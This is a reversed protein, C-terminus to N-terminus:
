FAHVAFSPQSIFLRGDRINPCSGCFLQELGRSGSLFAAASTSFPTLSYTRYSLKNRCRHRSVKGIVGSSRKSVAKVTNGRSGSTVCSRTRGVATTRYYTQMHMRCMFLPWKWCILSLTSLMNRRRDRIPDALYLHFGLLTPLFQENNERRFNFSLHNQGRDLIGEGRSSLIGRCSNGNETECFAKNSFFAAFYRVSFSASWSEVLM